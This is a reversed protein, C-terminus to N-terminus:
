RRPLAAGFPRGDRDEPAAQGAAHEVDGGAITMEIAFPPEGTRM